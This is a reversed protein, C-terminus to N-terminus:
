KGDEKVTSLLADEIEGDSAMRRFDLLQKLWRAIQRNKAANYKHMCWKESHLCLSVAAIRAEKEEEEGRKEFEEIAEELTPLKHIMEDDAKGKESLDRKIESLRDVLNLFALKDKLADAYIYEKGDLWAATPLMRIMNILEKKGILLTM